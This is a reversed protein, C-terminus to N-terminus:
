DKQRNTHGDTSGDTQPHILWFRNCNPDHLKRWLSAALVASQQRATFVLFIVSLEEVQKQCNIASYYNSTVDYHRWHWKDGARRDSYVHRWQLVSDINNLTVHVYQM